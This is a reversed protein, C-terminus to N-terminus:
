LRPGGSRRTPESAAARTEQPSGIVGNRVALEGVSVNRIQGCRIRRRSGDGTRNGALLPASHRPKESGVALLGLWPSQSASSGTELSGTEPRFNGALLSFLLSNQLIPASRRRRQRFLGRQLLPKSAFERRVRLLSNESAYCPFVPAMVPFIILADPYARQLAAQTGSGRRDLPPQDLRWSRGRRM